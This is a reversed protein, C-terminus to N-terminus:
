KPDLAILFAVCVPPFRHADVSWTAQVRTEPTVAQAVSDQRLTVGATFRTERGPAM